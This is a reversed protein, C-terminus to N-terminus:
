NTGSVYPLEITNRDKKIEKLVKELKSRKFM